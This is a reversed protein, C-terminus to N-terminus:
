NGYDREGVNFRDSAGSVSFGLLSSGDVKKGGKKGKKSKSKVEQFENSANVSKAPVDINGDDVVGRKQARWKSRRELFQKGFEKAEKGDGLYSRVYDNVDYASEVEKLFAIFTPIDIDSNMKGLYDMCWQTFKDVNNVQQQATKEFIKKVNEEDKAAKQKKPVLQQPQQQAPKQQQRPPQRVVPTEDWFGGGHGNSAQPPTEQSQKAIQGWSLNQTTGTWVGAQHFGLQAQLAAREARHKEAMKALEAAEEAQIEALSKISSNNETTRQGWKFSEKQQRQKVAAITAAQQQHLERLRKEQAARIAAERSEREQIEALSLGEDNSQSPQLSASWPAVSKLARARVAAQQEQLKEAALRQLEKQEEERKLREEELKQQRMEEEKIKSEEALRKEEELRRKEEELRRKEEEILKKRKEEEAKRRKEEEQQRKRKEEQQQKKEEQLRREEELQKRLEEVKRAREKELLKKEQESKRRAEEELKFRELDFKRREEEFQKREEELRLLEGRLREEEKRKREEKEREEQLRKENERKRQEELEKLNTEDPKNWSQHQNSPLGQGAINSVSDLGLMGPVPWGLGTSVMNLSMGPAGGGMIPAVSAETRTPNLSWPRDTQPLTSTPVPLQMLISQLSDTKAANPMQQLLSQIPDPKHTLPESAPDSVNQPLLSSGLLSRLHDLKLQSQLGPAMGSSEPLLPKNHQQQLQQLISQIPDKNMTEAPDFLKPQQLMLPDFNYKPLTADIHQQVLHHQQLPTLSQWGELQQLKAIVTQRLLQQQQQCILQQQRLQQQLLSHRLADSDATARSPEPELIPRPSPGPLFPPNRGWIKALEDLKSFTEDCARRVLLDKPFYGAKHWEIMESSKFPGQVHGQPDKYYWSDNPSPSIAQKRKGEDEEVLRAVLDDAVRDLGEEEFGSHKTDVADRNTKAEAQSPPSKGKQQNQTANGRPVTTLAQQNKVPSGPARDIKDRAKMPEKSEAKVGETPEKEPPVAKKVEETSNGKSVTSPIDKQPSGDAYRDEDEISLFTDTDDDDGRFAGSADFSGNKDKSTDVAWEPIDSADGWTKSPYSKRGYAGGSRPDEEDMEEQHHQRGRGRDGGYFTRRERFGDDNDDGRYNGRSSERWGSGGRVWKETRGATKWGEDDDRKSWRPKEGESESIRFGDRSRWNDAAGRPVFEKRPSTNSWEDGNWNRDALSQARDRDFVRGNGRILGPQRQTEDEDMRGYGGASRARGRGREISIGGRGGRISGTGSSQIFRGASKLAADSNIGRQWGNTEDETLTSFAMPTQAKEVFIHEFENLGPPLDLGKHFLALMEERTYQYDPLKYQPQLLDPSPPPSNNEGSSLARVWEPGFKLTTDTTM